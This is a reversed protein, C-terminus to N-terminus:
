CNPFLSLQCFKQKNQSHSRNKTVATKLKWGEQTRTIKGKSELGKLARGLRQNNIKLHNRIEKQFFPTTTSSLLKLISKEISVAFKEDDPPTYSLIQLHTDDNQKKAVLKLNFPEPSPASRHEIALTLKDKNKALYAYSDGFAYLDSSGRLAQGPQRHYKKGAHHVLVVAMDFTRQLERLFGLVGSIEMSSNEDLRHLRILPDLLMMKPRLKSITNILRKRDGQLDLRLVPTTIVHLPLSAIDLKRSKCINEIRNRVSSLADEALYVLAPGSQEVKFCGICNTKSSVSIAMDLGLWSKCSKPSGGIIGVAGHTWLPKILWKEEDPEIKIDAALTFPLIENGADRNLAM